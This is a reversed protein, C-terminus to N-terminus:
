DDGEGDDEGMGDSGSEARWGSDWLPRRRDDHPFPNKIIPEGARFAERGLKAAGDENVDPLVPEPSTEPAKKGGKKAPKARSPPPAPEPEVWDEAQAEGDTDRWIRLPTGGFKLIIEGTEPAILKLAAIVQDRAAVDVGMDGVARFLPAEKVMGMAAKYMDLMAESRERDAPDISRLKVIAKIYKPDFGASKAEAMIVKEDDNLESKRERVREVREVFGILDRSSISTGGKGGDEPM